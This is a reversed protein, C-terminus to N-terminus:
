KSSKPKTRQLKVRREEQVPDAVSTTAVHRALQPKLMHYAQGANANLNNVDLPSKELLDRGVNFFRGDSYLKFRDTRVLQAADKRVGDRHYWCYIYPKSDTASGNLVPWISSGDIRWGAHQQSLGAVDAITPLIDSFDVLAQTTTGPQIRGPWRAIFPVHTGNDTTSGKGGPYSRGNLISTVKPHTGNDGTFIVLTNQRLGNEDLTQSIKGIIKDVYEVMGKFYKAKGIGKEGFVTPDYDASDPTPVFPYHPLIMPYWAFFPEDKNRHIFDCLYDSVIDPGYEGNTYDVQKGNIELGPNSYRGPRRNLQWLCYEDFGFRAPAQLGGDLQWKGVICTKYGAAKFLNGFTKEQPDLVGFRVYNRNNYIGTMIQVRSPTCIPQAHAHEFRMGETALQDLHPTVYSEGGNAAVCEYGMDDAMILVINPRSEAQAKAFRASTCLGMAVLCVAMIWLRTGATIVSFQLM